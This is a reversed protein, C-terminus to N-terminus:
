EIVYSDLNAIFTKPSFMESIMNVSPSSLNELSIETFTRWAERVLVFFTSKLISFGLKNYKILRNHGRWINEPFRNWILYKEHCDSSFRPLATTRSFTGDVKEIAICCVTFDFNRLVDEVSGGTVTEKYKLPRVLNLHPLDDRVIYKVGFATANLSLFKSCVRKARDYEVINPFFVDVDMERRFPENTACYRAFGGAIFCNIGRFLDNLIALVESGAIIKSM